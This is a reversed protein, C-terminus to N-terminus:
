HTWTYHLSPGRGGDMRGGCSGGGGVLQAREALDRQKKRGKAEDPVEINHKRLLRKVSLASLNAPAGENTLLMSAIVNLADPTDKYEAYLDKLQAVDVQMVPSPLVPPVTTAALM